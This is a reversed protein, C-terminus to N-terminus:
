SRRRYLGICASGLLLGTSPEPISNTNAPPTGANWNGLVLNLDDIGVFGDGSPDAAPDGPPISQNWNGLVTTLDDIGVFGDSNVDGNLGTVFALERIVIHAGDGLGDFWFRIGDVDSLMAGPSSIPPELSSLPVTVTTRTTTTPLSASGWSLLRSSGETTDTFLTIDVQSPQNIPDYWPNPLGPDLTDITVKIATIELTELDLNLSNGNRYTNGYIYEPGECFRSNPTGGYDWTGEAPDHTVPMTGTNVCSDLIVKREGGLTHTPNLGTEHVSFFRDSPVLTKSSPGGTTFDDILIDGSAIDGTSLVLM